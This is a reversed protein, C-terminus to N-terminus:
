VQRIFFERTSRISKTTRNNIRNWRIRNWPILLRNLDHLHTRTSDTRRLWMLNEIALLDKLVRLIVHIFHIRNNPKNLIDMRIERHLGERIGNIIDPRIRLLFRTFTSEFSNLVLAFVILLSDCENSLIVEFCIHILIELLESIIDFPQTLFNVRFVFVVKPCDFFHIPFDIEILVLDSHISFFIAFFLFTYIVKNMLELFELFVCLLLLLLLWLFLFFLFFFLLLILYFRIITACVISLISFFSFCCCRLCAFFLSTISYLFCFFSLYIIHLYSIASIWLSLNRSRNLILFRCFAIISTIYKLFFKIHNFYIKINSSINTHSYTTQKLQWILFFAAIQLHTIYYILAM